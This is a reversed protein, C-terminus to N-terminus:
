PIPQQNTSDSPNICQLQVAMGSPNKPPRVSPPPPSIFQKVSSLNILCLVINCNLLGGKSRPVKTHPFQFVIISIYMFVYSVQSMKHDPAAPTLPLIFCSIHSCSITFYISNLIVTKGWDVHNNNNNNMCVHPQVNCLLCLLFLLETITFYYYYYIWGCLIIFVITAPNNYM